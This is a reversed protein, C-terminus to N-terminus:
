KISLWESESLIHINLEEAKKAKSGPDKGLVIYDTKSSVTNTVKFGLREAVAKAESRGQNQLTGTFIITKGFYPLVEANSKIHPLIVLHPTLNEVWTREECHRSFTIIDEAIAPGIGSLDELAKLATNNSISSWFNEWTEYHLALQKATVIGVQPIGLAYILRHLEITQVSKIASFLNQLSQNGWGDEKELPHNKNKTHLTFLDSPSLIRKSNYLFRIHKEGLGDINFALKSVFHKLRGIAQASCSFGGTCRTAAEREPKDTLHACVPCIKPMKYPQFNKKTTLSEVIQPIVDGARQIVVQDGISLRKRNIEEENHLTARSVIVGGINIPELEAVPTLVGTRGVQITISNLTTIAQEAAFKHAIAFRPSRSIFGLRAQLQKDNVKYVIGDIDYGLQSRESAAKDYFSKCESINACVKRESNVSFGWSSLLLLSKEHSDIELSCNILDYAFFKLPREATVSPNLQRLSGAAANRPNAFVAESNAERTDNLHNFDTISLYVEGRIEVESDTYPINKPIDTITTLNKTVDEGTTGDGRTAGRILRGNKYRVALSLGDIKLEAVYEVPHEQSLNIFRHIREDFSIIDDDSFANDLSLMPKLHLSKKFRKVIPAGVLTEPNNKPTLNPHELILLQYKKRLTDYEADSIEPSDDQYYRDNHYLIKNALDHIDEKIDHTM